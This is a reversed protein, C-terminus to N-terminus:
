NIYEIFGLEIARYNTVIINIMLNTEETRLKQSAFTLAIFLFLFELPDPM